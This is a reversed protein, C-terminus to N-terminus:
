SAMGVKEGLTKLLRDCHPARRRVTEPDLLSLLKSAHKIQKKYEGKQTKRSATDLSSLVRPKDVREVNDDKPIASANFNQGYFRTLADVDAIFWSEMVQVMLHCQDDAASPNKWGDNSQLHDWPKVDDVPGESDVLLVNFVDPDVTLGECFKDFTSGRSGCPFVRIQGKRAQAAEASAELFKSFGQRLKVKGESGKGGGEVYIHVRRTM